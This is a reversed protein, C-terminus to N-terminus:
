LKGERTMPAEALRLNPHGFFQYAIHTGSAADDNGTIATHTVGARYARLVEAPAQGADLVREYFDIAIASAVEDNVSWLPAIVAAAGVRVFASAMGSYNGLVARSAGVQCANLFVLPSRRLKGADVHSPKLYVPYKGDEGTGILVLGQRADDTSFQGHLAFHIIDAEPSGSLCALVAPLSAEVPRAAPWRERLKEAEHEASKLESWDLVGEYEGSVVAEDQVGVYKPPDFTPPPEAALVWRGIVAQAGLFPSADAQWGPLPPDLVTLEWPIYPDQSLLLVTPRRPAVARAVSRLADKVFRPMLPAIDAKGRGTLSTVLDLVDTTSSAETVLESLFSEASSLLAPGTADPPLAIDLHPSAASWAFRSGHSADGHQIVITLDAAEPATFPAIDFGGSSAATAAVTPVTKREAETMTVHVDRAAYGRMERGVRFVVGIRRRAAFQPNTSAILTVARKPYRNRATVDLTFARDGDVIFGDVVLEVGLTFNGQPVALMGTGYVAPDQRDGLGVQIQFSRGAVVATPAELYPWATGNAARDDDARDDDASDWDLPTWVPDPSTESRVATTAQEYGFESDAAAEPAPADERTERWAYEEYDPAAPFEAAPAPADEPTEWRDERTEWRFYEGYDRAPLEAAPPPAASTPQGPRVSLVARLLLFALAQPPRREAEASRGAGVAAM